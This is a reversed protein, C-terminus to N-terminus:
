KTKALIKGLESVYEGLSKIKDNDAKTLFTKNIERLQELNSDLKRETLELRLKEIMGKLAKNEEALKQVEQEKKKLELVKIDIAHEDGPNSTAM